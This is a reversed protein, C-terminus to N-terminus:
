FSRTALPLNRKRGPIDLLIPVEPLTERIRAITAKHWDLDSHSGNLRALSMGAARLKLLSDKDESAPGITCVIRTQSM